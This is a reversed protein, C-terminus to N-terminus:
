FSHPTDMSLRRKSMSLWPLDKGGQEKRGYKLARVRTKM